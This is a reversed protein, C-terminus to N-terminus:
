VSPFTAGAHCEVSAETARIDTIDEVNSLSAEVVAHMVDRNITSEREREIWVVIVSLSLPRRFVVLCPTHFLLLFPCLFTFYPLLVTCITCGGHDAHGGSDITMFDTASATQVDKFTSSIQAGEVEYM